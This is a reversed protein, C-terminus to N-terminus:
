EGGGKKKSLFEKIRKIHCCQYSPEKYERFKYGPCDCKFIFSGNTAELMRITREVGPESDSPVKFARNPKEAPIEKIKM